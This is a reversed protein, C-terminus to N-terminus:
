PPNDDAGIDIQLVSNVLIEEAEQVCWSIYIKGAAEADTM